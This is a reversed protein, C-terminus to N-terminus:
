NLTNKFLQRQSSCRGACFSLVVNQATCGERTFNRVQTTVACDGNAECEPVDCAALEEETQQDCLRGSCSRKRAKLVDKGCIPCESWASWNSWSPSCLDVCLEAGGSCSCENCEDSKFSVGDTVGKCRDSCRPTSELCDALETTQSCYVGSLPERYRFRRDSPKKKFSCSSNPKNRILM